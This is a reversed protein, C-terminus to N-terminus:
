SFAGLHLIGDFEDPIDIICYNNRIPILRILPVTEERQFVVLIKTLLIDGKQENVYCEVQNTGSHYQTKFVNTTNETISERISFTTHEKPFAISLNNGFPDLGSKKPINVRGDNHIVFYKYSQTDFLIPYCTFRNNDSIFYFQYYDKETDEFVRVIYQKDGGSLTGIKNSGINVLGGEAAIRKSMPKAAAKSLVTLQDDSHFGIINSIFDEILQKKDM